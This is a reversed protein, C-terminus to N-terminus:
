PPGIVNLFESLSERQYIGSSILQDMKAKGIVRQQILYALTEAEVEARAKQSSRQLSLTPTQAFNTQEFVKIIQQNLILTSHGFLFHSLEHLQIHIQHMEPVDNRYFIYEIPEEGDSIWLGFLSSPLQWPKSVIQRGKFEEVFHIFENMSFTAFDFHLEQLIVEAKLRAIFAQM